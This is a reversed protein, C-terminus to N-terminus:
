RYLLYEFTSIYVLSSLLIIMGCMNAHAPTIHEINTEMYTNIYSVMFFTQTASLRNVSRMLCEFYAFKHALEAM